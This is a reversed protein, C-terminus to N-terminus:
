TVQSQFISEPMEKEEKKKCGLEPVRILGHPADHIKFCASICGKGWKRKFIRRTFYFDFNPMVTGHLFVPGDCGQLVFIFVSKFLADEIAGFKKKERYPLLCVL